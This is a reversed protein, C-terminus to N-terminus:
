SMRMVDPLVMVHLTEARLQDKVNKNRIGPVDRMHLVAMIM